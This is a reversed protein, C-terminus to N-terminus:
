VTFHQGLPPRCEADLNKTGVLARGVIDHSEHAVCLRSADIRANKIVLELFESFGVVQVIPDQEQPVSNDKAHGKV